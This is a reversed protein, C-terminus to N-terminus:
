QFTAIEFSWTLEGIGGTLVVTQPTLMIRDLLDSTDRDRVEMFSGSQSTFRAEPMYTSGLRVTLRHTGPPITTDWSSQQSGIVFTAAIEGSTGTPRVVRDDLYFEVLGDSSYWFFRTAELAITGVLITNRRVSVGTRCALGAYTVTVTATGLGVATVVGAQVTVVTSDSTTWTAAATVDDGTGDSQRVRVFLRTSANRTLSVSEQSLVLAVATPTTTTPATPSDGCAATALCVLAALVTPKM